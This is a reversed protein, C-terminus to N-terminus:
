YGDSLASRIQAPKLGAVRCGSENAHYMYADGYPRGKYVLGAQELREMSQIDTGAPAFHNRYGWRNKKIHSGIGLMHQLNEMDVDILHQEHALNPM